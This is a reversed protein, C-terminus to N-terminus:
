RLLKEGAAGGGGGDIFEEGVADKKGEVVLGSGVGLGSGSVGVGVGSGSGEGAIVSETVVM